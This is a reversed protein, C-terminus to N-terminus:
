AGVVEGSTTNAVTAGDLAYTRAHYSVSPQQTAKRVRVFPGLDANSVGDPEDMSVLLTLPTGTDSGIHVYAYSPM